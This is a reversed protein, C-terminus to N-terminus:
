DEGESAQELLSALISAVGCRSGEKISIEKNSPDPHGIPYYAIDQLLLQSDLYDYDYDSIQLVVGPIESFLLKTTDTEQYSSMLGCLDIGTGCEGCMSVVATALGGDAVTAGAIVIGDEVLERVVEYCDIFYDPDQIHPGVGGNHGQTQALLSGGIKHPCTDFPIYILWDSPDAKMDSPCKRLESIWPHRSQFPSDKVQIEDQSEDNEDLSKEPLWAYFDLHSELDTEDFVYDELKVGLDFIYGSASEVSRYFAAMNGLPRTNWIWKAWLHLNGLRFHGENWIRDILAKGIRLRTFAEPYLLRFPREKGAEKLCDEIYQRENFQSYTFSTVPPDTAEDIIDEFDSSAAIGSDEDTMCESLLEAPTADCRIGDIIYQSYLASEKETM